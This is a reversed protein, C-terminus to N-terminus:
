MCSHCLSSSRLLANTLDAREPKGECALSGPLMFLDRQLPQEVIHEGPLYAKSRQARVVGRLM